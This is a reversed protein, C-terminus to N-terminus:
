PLIRPKEEGRWHSGLWGFGYERRKELDILQFLSLGNDIDQDKLMYLYAIHRVNESEFGLSKAAEALYEFMNLSLGKLM